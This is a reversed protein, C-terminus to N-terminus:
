IRSNRIDAMCQPCYIRNAADAEIANLVFEKKDMGQRMVCGHNTCHAGLKNETNSRNLDLAAGLVHGLEHWILTKIVAKREYPILDRYRFVSQVTTRGNTLGFCFNLGEISLDKSTVLIDIHPNSEQWPEIFMLRNLSYADLQEYEGTKIRRANAIYWDASSYDGTSWARSGYNVIQRNPFLRKFEQMSENVAVQEFINLGSDYTVYIPLM